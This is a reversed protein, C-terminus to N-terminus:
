PQACRCILRPAAGLCGIEMGQVCGAGAAWGALCRSGPVANCVEICHAGEAAVQCYPTGGGGDVHVGVECTMGFAACAQGVELDCTGAQCLGMGGEGCPTGNPAAVIMPPAAGQCGEMARCEGELVVEQMRDAEGCASRDDPDRCSGPGLCRGGEPRSRLSFCIDGQRAYQAAGGCNVMPCMTDDAPVTRQACADCIECLGLRMGPQCQPPPCNVGMDRPPPPPGMDRMPPVVRMDPTPPPPVGQEVLPPPVFAELEDPDQGGAEGDEEDVITTACGCTSLVWGILIARWM